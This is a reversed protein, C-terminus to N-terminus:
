FYIVPGCDSYCCQTYDRLAGDEGCSPSQLACAAVAEVAEGFKAQLDDCRIACGEPEIAQLM